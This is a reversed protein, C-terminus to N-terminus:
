PLAQKAAGKEVAALLTENSLHSYRQTSQVSAHGLVKGVTFIDVGSNVMFSAASHRLDHIRLGKLKARRIAVQWANKVSVFPKRTDPNPVL